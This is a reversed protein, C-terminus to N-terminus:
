LGVPREAITRARRLEDIDASSLGLVARLVEENHEGFMPAPSRIWRDVGDVRFPLTPVPLTGVVAHDVTEHFGRALFQPHRAVLRPDRVAVAPVGADVLSAGAAEPARSRTWATIARDLLDHADRRGTRTGLRADEILDPRGIGRALARWQEETEASVALWNDDGACPYLGQPAAVASRNGDRGMLNEYASWEIIPEAAIALAADFMAAEVLCGTGSREREALAACLAVVAHAGGNPDCPGRQIRPQDDAPGTIWALGSAQEITQAFGPRDSWPGDLGFAPMRVLVALPNVEHVVDWGLGLKGLVRPTANEIIVDALRVLDLVRARGQESDMELSLDRKNPNVALFFWSREWWLPRDFFTAGVMRMGDMRSPSEVHVVDAGFAALLGSASPGAWWATLDLVKIGELARGPPPGEARVAQAPATDLWAITAEPVGPVPPVPGPPPGPDGDVRWPRGPMVFRGSPAEVLSRRARVHDLDAVTRGDCVPAVPVRHAAALDVIEATTRQTTWAAVMANWETARALRDSPMTFEGSAVLDDRGMMHLFAQLQHPANTNFGVWGDKTREISPIELQRPPGVPNAEPGALMAHYLDSFNAGGLYNAEAISVDVVGGPGGRCRGAWVVLAAAAAYAGALWECTRGGMQYPARDAAGRVALAGSDAQLTLDTSPRDRWPGLLGYPTIAVTVVSPHQQATERLVDCEAGQPSGLVVDVGTGFLDGEFTVARQGARLYEYLAGDGGADGDQRWSRLPDGGPPELRVVDAGAHALLRAAYAGPIGSSVDLVRPAVRGGVVGTMVPSRVSM